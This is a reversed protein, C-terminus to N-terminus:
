SMTGSENIIYLKAGEALFFNNFIFNLSYANKSYFSMSWIRGNPVEKWEGNELNIDIDFDKGFRYPKLKDLNKLDEDKMKKYDFNPLTLTKNSKIVKKIFGIQDTANGKQFFNSVVQSSCLNLWLLGVLFLLIKKM